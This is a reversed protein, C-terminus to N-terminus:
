GLGVQLPSDGLSFVSVFLSKLGGLVTDCEARGGERIFEIIETISKVPSIPLDGM